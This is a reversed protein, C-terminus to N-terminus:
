AFEDMLFGVDQPEEETLGAATRVDLYFEREAPSLEALGIPWCVANEEGFFRAAVDRIASQRDSAANGDKVAATLAKLDRESPTFFPM